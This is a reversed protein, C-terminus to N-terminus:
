KAAKQLRTNATFFEGPVHENQMLQINKNRLDTTRMDDALNSLLRDTGKGIIKQGVGRAALSAAPLQMLASLINGYDNTAQAGQAADAAALLARSFIENKSGIANAATDAVTGASHLVNYAIDTPKDSTYSSVSDTGDKGLINSIIDGEGEGKNKAGKNGLLNKEVANYMSFNNKSLLAALDKSSLAKLLKALATAEKITPM